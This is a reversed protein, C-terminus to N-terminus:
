IGYNLVLIMLGIFQFSGVSSFQSGIIGAGGQEKREVRGHRDMRDADSAVAVSSCTVVESSVREPVSSGELIRNWSSSINLTLPHHSSCHGLGNSDKVM